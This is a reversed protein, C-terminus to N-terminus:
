NVAKIRCRHTTRTPPPPCSTGFKHFMTSQFTNWVAMLLADEVCWHNTWSNFPIDVVVELLFANSKWMMYNRWSMICHRVINGLTSMKEITRRVKSHIIYIRWQRLQKTFSGSITYSQFRKQNKERTAWITFRRGVIHSVWTRDRPRSSGRSFSIAVWELVRAQFIGHTSSCPLSCDM